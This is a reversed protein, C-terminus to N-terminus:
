PLQSAILAPRPKPKQCAQHAQLESILVAFADADDLRTSAWEATAALKPSATSEAVAKAMGIALKMAVENIESPRLRGAVTDDLFDITRLMYNCLEASPGGTLQLCLHIAKKYNELQRM